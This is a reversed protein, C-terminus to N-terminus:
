DELDSVNQPVQSKDLPLNLPNACYKEKCRPCLWFLFERHVEGELLQEPVGATQDEIKKLLAALDAPSTLKVMGDFGQQLMVKLQYFSNGPPLPRHCKNCRRM